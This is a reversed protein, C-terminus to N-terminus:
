QKKKKLDSIKLRRSFYVLFGAGLIFIWITQIIRDAAMGVFGYEFSSGSVAAMFGSISETLGINGPLITAIRFSVVSMVILIISGLSLDYGVSEFVLRMKIVLLILIIAKLVVLKQITSRNKRLLAYGKQFDMIAKVIFNKSVLVPFNMFLLMVSGFFVLFFLSVVNVGVSDSTIKLYISTLFGIFGAVLFMLVISVILSSTYNALSLKKQSKLYVANSIAGAGMPLYNAFSRISSLGFSEIVGIHVDFTQCLVKIEIGLLFQNFLCLLSIIMFNKFRIDKVKLIEKFIDPNLYYVVTFFLSVVLWGIIKRKNM